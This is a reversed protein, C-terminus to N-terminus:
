VIAEFPLPNIGNKSLVDIANQPNNTKTVVVADDIKESPFAYMYELAINGSKFLQLVHSLGGPKHGIPIAIVDTVKVIVGEAKLLEATKQPHNVILRMIGYDSTDAISLAYININAKAIIEIIDAASGSSNEVFVSIQKIFM